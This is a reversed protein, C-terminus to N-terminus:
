HAHYLTNHNQYVLTTFPPMSSLHHESVLPLDSPTTQQVTASRPNTNFIEQLWSPLPYEGTCSGSTKSQASLIFDGLLWPHYAPDYRSNIHFFPTLWRTRTSHSANGFITLWAPLIRCWCILPIPHRLSPDKRFSRMEYM